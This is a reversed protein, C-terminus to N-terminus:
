AVNILEDVGEMNHSLPNEILLHCSDKVVRLAMPIHLNPPTCIVVGDFCSLDVREFDTFAQDINYKQELVKLRDGKPECLSVKLEGVKLFNRLHREGISGGGVILINM